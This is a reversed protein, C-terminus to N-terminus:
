KHLRRASVLSTAGVPAGAVSETRILAEFYVPGTSTDNVGLVEQLKRRSNADALFNGAAETGEQHLGQMIMVNGHGNPLPFLSITAYDMGGSGTFPLGCYSQQEGPQPHLNDFCSAGSRAVDMDKRFNFKDVFSLVWPNSNPAGLLVFNGEDFDHPSLDHASRVVLRDAREGSM